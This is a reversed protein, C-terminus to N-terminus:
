NDFWIEGQTGADFNGSHYDWLLVMGEDRVEVLQGGETPHDVIGVLRNDIITFHQPTSSDMGSAYDSHLWADDGNSTCLEYGLSPIGCQFFLMGDKVIYQSNLNVISTNMESLILSTTNFSVLGDSDFVISNGIVTPSVIQGSTSQLSTTMKELTLSDSRHLQPGDSDSTAIFWYYGDHFAVDSNLEGNLITGNLNISSGTSYILVDNASALNSYTGSILSDNDGFTMLGNGYQLVLENDAEILRDGAQIQVSLNTEQWITLGDTSWLQTGGGDNADFWIRNEHAIFGLISGPAFDVSASIQQLSGDQIKYLLCNGDLAAAFVFLDSVALGGNCGTSFSNGSNPHIDTMRGSDLEQFCIKISSEVEGSSSNNGMEIVVAEQCPGYSGTHSGIFSSVGIEGNTGNIGDTGNLGDTGNHGWYGRNGMPGPPGQTGHCVNKIDTVEDGELIGSGDSDIGSQISFGGDECGHTGYLSGTKSLTTKGDVGSELNGIDSTYYLAISSLVLSIIVSSIGLFKLIKQKRTPKNEAM